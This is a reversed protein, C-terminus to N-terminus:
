MDQLYTAYEFNTIQRAFRAAEQHKVSVILDIIEQPLLQPVIESFEFSDIASFWDMPLADLDPDDYTSGQIPAPPTLQNDIGYLIGALIASCVLYPNADAGAVRHELRRAQYPGGPVRVAATRNEYGWAIMTPAHSGPALRRYSNFHPAFLLMFSDMTALVGAIANHLLPSGQESNDDFVNHGHKDELSCHVHFGNGSQDGYPKAMFTATWGHQMAVSKVVQKFLMADDAAKLPDNCHLLNIEFQGCGNEAIAADAPIGLAECRAYVDDLFGDFEYLDSISLISTKNLRLGTQPSVPPLPSKGQEYDVLYFELETAIVPKLNRAEFQAAIQALM